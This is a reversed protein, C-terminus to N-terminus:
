KSKTLLLQLNLWGRLIWCLDTQSVIAVKSRNLKHKIRLRTMSSVLSIASGTDVILNIVKIGDYRGLVAWIKTQCADGGTTLVMKDDSSESDDEDSQVVMNSQPFKPKSNSTNEPRKTPWQRKVINGSQMPIPPKSRCEISKHGLKGCTYCTIPKRPPLGNPPVNGSSYSAATQTRM